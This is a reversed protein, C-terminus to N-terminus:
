MVYEEGHVVNAARENSSVDIFILMIESLPDKAVVKLFIFSYLQALQLLPDAWFIICVSNGM